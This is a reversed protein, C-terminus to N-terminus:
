VEFKSALEQMCLQYTKQVIIQIDQEIHEFEHNENRDLARIIGETILMETGRLNISRPKKETLQEVMDNFARAEKKLVSALKHNFSKLSESLPGLEFRSLCGYWCM